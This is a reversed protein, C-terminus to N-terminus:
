LDKARLRRAIETIIGLGIIYYPIYQPNLIAQVASNINPDGLFGTVAATVSGILVQLRALFITESDKFWARVAEWKWWALIGLAILLFIAVYIM